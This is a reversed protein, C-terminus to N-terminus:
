QKALVQSKTLFRTSPTSVNKGVAQSADAEAPPATTALPLAFYGFFDSILQTSSYSENYFVQNGDTKLQGLVANAVTQGKSFNVNSTSPLSTDTDPFVIINGNGQPETVTVNYMAATLASNPVQLWESMSSTIEWGSKVIGGAEGTRTDFMRTPFSPVFKASAATSYYGELDVLLDSAGNSDLYLDIVRNAPIPVIVLNPVTDGKSFNLNSSNPITSSDPYVKVDGFSSPNVATVNLAVASAGAAVSSPLTLRVKQWAALRGGIGGTKSRTDVIRTSTLAQYGSDTPDNGSTYYGELDAILQVSGSNQQVNLVIDGGSVMAVTVLNAVTQGAGFNVNSTTPTNLLGSSYVRINGGATPSTVTVNLVVAEVPGHGSDTVSSPLPISVSQKADIPGTYSGVQSSARTDLLRLPSIAHYGDGVTLWQSSSVTTQGADTITVVVDYTGEWEPETAVPSSSVVPASGDGFDFSYTAGPTANSGSANLTVDTQGNGSADAAGASAKVPATLLSPVPTPTTANYRVLGYWGPSAVQQCTIAFTANLQTIGGAANYAIQYITFSGYYTDCGTGFLVYSIGATTPTGANLYTGPVLQQDVPASISWTWGEEGGAVVTVNGSNGSAQVSSGTYVDAGTWSLSAGPASTISFEDADASTTGSNPPDTIAAASSPLAPVPTALTANYRVLGVAGPAAASTGCDLSFTANVDGASIEIITFSGSTCTNGNDSVSIGTTYTGPTLATASTLSLQWGSASATVTELDASVSVMPSTNDFTIGDGIEYGEGSAAYFETPSGGPAAHPVTAAQATALPAIGSAVAVSLTLAGLMRLRM